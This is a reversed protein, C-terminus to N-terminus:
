ASEAAFPQLDGTLLIRCKCLTAHLADAPARQTAQRGIEPGASWLTIGSRALWRLVAICDGLSSLVSSLCVQETFSAKTFFCQLAGLTHTAQLLYAHKWDKASTATVCSSPYDRQLVTQWAQGAEVLTRLAPM